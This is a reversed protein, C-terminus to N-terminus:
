TAAHTRTHTHTDPSRIPPARDTDQLFFLPFSWVKQEVPRMLLVPRHYWSGTAASLPLISPLVKGVSRGRM